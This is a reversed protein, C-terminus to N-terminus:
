YATRYGRGGDAPCLPGLRAGKVEKGRSGAGKVEEVKCEDYNCETLEQGWQWIYWIALFHDEKAYLKILIM